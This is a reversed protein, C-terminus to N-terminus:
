PLKMKGSRLEEEIIDLAALAGNNANAVQSEGKVLEKTIQIANEPSLMFAPPDTYVDSVVLLQQLFM